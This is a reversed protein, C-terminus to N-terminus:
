HAQYYEPLTFSDDPDNCHNKGERTIAIKGEDNITIFGVTYFYHDPLPWVAEFGFASLQKWLEAITFWIEKGENEAQHTRECLTKM